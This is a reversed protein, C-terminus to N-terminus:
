QEFCMMVRSFSPRGAISVNPYFKLFELLSQQKQEYVTFLLIITIIIVELM